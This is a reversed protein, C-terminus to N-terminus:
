KDRAHFIWRHFFKNKAKRKHKKNIKKQRSPAFFIKEMVFQLLDFNQKTPFTAMPQTQREDDDDM